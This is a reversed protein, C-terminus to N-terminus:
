WMVERSTEGSKLTAGRKMEVAVSYITNSLQFSKPSDVLSSLSENEMLYDVADTM